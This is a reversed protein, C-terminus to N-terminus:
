SKRRSPTATEALEAEAVVAYAPGKPGLTSRMLVIRDVMTRVPPEETKRSALPPVGRAQNRARAVTVHPLFARPEPPFGLAVAREELGAALRPLSGTPDSVGLALAGRFTKWGGMEIPFPGMAAAGDRLAETLRPVLDLPTDGLFRLTLHLREEPVVRWGRGEGIRGQAVAILSRAAEGELPCAYFARFSGNASM